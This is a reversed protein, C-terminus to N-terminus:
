VAKIAPGQSVLLNPSNCSRLSSLASREERHVPLFSRRASPRAFAKKPDSEPLNGAIM